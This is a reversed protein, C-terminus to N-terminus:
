DVAERGFGAALADPRPLEAMVVTAPHGFRAVRASEERIAASWAAPLALAALRDITAAAAPPNVEDVEPEIADSRAPATAPGRADPLVSAVFAEIAAANPTRGAARPEDAPPELGERGERTSGRRRRARLAISVVYADIAVVLAGLITLTLQDTTV